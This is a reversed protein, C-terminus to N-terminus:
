DTVLSQWNAFMEGDILVALTADDTTQCRKLWRWLVQEINNETFQDPNQRFTKWIENALARAAETGVVHTGDEMYRDLDNMGDTAIIWMYGETGHKPYLASKPSHYKGEAGMQPPVDPSTTTLLTPIAAFESGDPSQTLLYASGDALQTFIHRDRSEVVGIFTTAASSAPLGKGVLAEGIRRSAESYFEPLQHLALNTSAGLRSLFDKFTQVITQSAISSNKAMGVGDAVAIVRYRGKYLYSFAIGADQNEDPEGKSRTICVAFGPKLMTEEASATELNTREPIRSLETNMNRTQLQLKRVSRLIQVSFLSALIQLSIIIFISLELWPPVTSVPHLIRPFPTDEPLVTPSPSATPTATSAPSTSPTPTLSLEPTLSLIYSATPPLATYVTATLNTSITPLTSFATLERTLSPTIDGPFSFDATPTSLTDAWSLGVGKFLAFPILPVILLVVFIKIMFDTSQCHEDLTSGEM